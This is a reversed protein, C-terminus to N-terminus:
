LACKVIKQACKCLGLRSHANQPVNESPASSFAYTHLLMQKSNIRSKLM